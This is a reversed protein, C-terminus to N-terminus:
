HLIDAIYCYSMCKGVLTVGRISKVSSDTIRHSTGTTSLVKTSSQLYNIFIVACLQLYIIIAHLLKHIISTFIKM